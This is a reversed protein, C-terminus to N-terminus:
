LVYRAKAVRIDEDTVLTYIKTNYKQQIYASGSKNGDRLTQMDVISIVAVIEVGFEFLLYDLVRELSKGSGIMDDIVIIKDGKQPIYGCINRGRSDPMKRDFCYSVTQNYKQYLANATSASFAIGHYAHGMIVDFSLKNERIFDAFCEGIKSIQANTTFNETNITYKNNDSFKIVGSHYM